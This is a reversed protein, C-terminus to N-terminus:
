FKRCDRGQCRPMDREAVRVPPLRVTDGASLRYEPKVRARNVRVEGKRLIRYIRSKPVGKLRAILFNDIRQGSQDADIEVFQVSSYDQM